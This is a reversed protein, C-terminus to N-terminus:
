HNIGPQVSNVRNSGFYDFSKAPETGLLEVELRGGVGPTNRLVQIM